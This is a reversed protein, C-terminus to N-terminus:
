IANWLCRELMWCFITDFSPSVAFYKQKSGRRHTGEPKLFCYYCVLRSMNRPNNERRSFFFKKIHFGFALPRPKRLEDLMIVIYKGKLIQSFFLDWLRKRCITPFDAHNEINQLIKSPIVNKRNLKQLQTRSRSFEQDCEYREKIFTGLQVNTHLHSRKIKTSKFYFM